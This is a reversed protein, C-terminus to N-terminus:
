NAAASLLARREEETFIPAALEAARAESISAEAGLADLTARGIAPDPVDATFTGPPPAEPTDVLRPYPAAAVSESEPLDYAGLVGVTGCGGLAVPGALLAALVGTPRIRAM